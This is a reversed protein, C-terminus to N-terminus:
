TWQKLICKEHQGFKTIMCLNTFKSVFDTMVTIRLAEVKTYLYKLNSNNQNLQKVNLLFLYFKTLNLFFTLVSKIFFSFNLM